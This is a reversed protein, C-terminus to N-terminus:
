AKIVMPDMVETRDKNNLEAIEILAALKKKKKEIRRLKKKSLQM